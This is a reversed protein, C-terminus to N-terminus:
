KAVKVMADRIIKENVAYGEQLVEMVTGAPYNEDAEGEIVAHHFNPNFEEGLAEIKKLGLGKLTEDLQNFVMVIGKKLPDDDSVSECQILARQMNDIVPLIETITNRTGSGSAELRQAESRKRFNDFEAKQRQAMELFEDRQKKVNLLEEAVKDMDKQSYTKSHKKSKKKDKTDDESIEPDAEFESNEPIESSDHKSEESAATNIEQGKLEKESDKKEEPAKNKDTM